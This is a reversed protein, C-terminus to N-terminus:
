DLFLSEVSHVEAANQVALANVSFQIESPM